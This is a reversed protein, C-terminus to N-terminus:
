CPILSKYSLSLILAAKSNKEIIKYERKIAREDRKLLFSRKRFERNKKEDIFMDGKRTFLWNMNLNPYAEKVKFLLIARPSNKGLKLNSITGKTVGLKDQIVSNSDPINEFVETLNIGVNDM